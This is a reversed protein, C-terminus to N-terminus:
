SAARELEGVFSGFLAAEAATNMQERILVAARETALKAAIARIEQTGAREAAAIEARAAQQIKEVESKTLGRIRERDAASDRQGALREEAIQRELNSMKEFTEKLEREAAARSQGAEEISKAISQTRARFYPAGYKSIVYALAGFVLLFNLWRFVTGIPTNAADSAGEQALAPLSVMGLLVAGLLASGIARLGARGLSWRGALRTM